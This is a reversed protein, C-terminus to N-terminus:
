RHSDSDLLPHGEWVPEPLLRPVAPGRAPPGPLALVPLLDDAGAASGAASRRDPRMVRAASRSRTKDCASLMTLTGEQKARRGERVAACGAGSEHQCGFASSGYYTGVRVCDDLAQCAQQQWGTTMSHVHDICSTISVIHKQNNDLRCYRPAVCQQRQAVQHRVHLGVDGHLQQAADLM